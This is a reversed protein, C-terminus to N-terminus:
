TKCKRKNRRRLNSRNYRCIKCDRGTKCFVLNEPILEHGRICHTKAANTAQISLSNEIVNEKRTVERLHEPNCCSRNKCIHDLVMFEDLKGKFISYSLRHVLCSRKGAWMEGYGTKKKYGLWNWCNNSDINIKSLLRIHDFIPIPLNPKM